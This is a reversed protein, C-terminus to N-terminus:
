RIQWYGARQLLLPAGGRGPPLPTYHYQGVRALGSVRLTLALRGFRYGLAERLVRYVAQDNHLAAGPELSLREPAEVEPVFLVPAGIRKLAESAPASATMAIQALGTRAWSM